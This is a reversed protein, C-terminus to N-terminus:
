WVEIGPMALEEREMFATGVAMIAAVIGDVRGTAKEKTIKRNGAPDSIVVANAACMTMVPNGNHKITQGVIMREFENIAPAMDKFGQGFSVLPLTIGNDECTQKFEEILWRDYGIEVVDYMECAQRCEIAVALKNIVKGTTTQLHGADRMEVYPVKDQDSKAQLNDDPLWFWCLMRWVPDDETPEFALVFSTLDRVSSLDLGGFCRRGRLLRVDFDKDECGFWVDPTIWPNEAGVWECFNLRRVISEKAPMGRAETVQERIYKLGPLGYKLSPNVKYWCDEDKFPDDGEDLACVYSFFADDVRQQSAVKIGYDHYQWCVTHKNFGSNTIMVMMAQKRSKTGARMMEVVASTKHEHIEDILSVHPRPGSQGDDASIPRFFSGTKLYALNWVGLGVGSKSLVKKLGSSQDVMAVADRFLIMAQDKKTAAAYIEARSEGDAVLGYLGIGAVLPSKGSGKATEIYAVRFRRYGDEGLWGFLSGVVFAEWDNLEFQVGEYDGGNLCLEDRFFGIARNALDYDFKLGRLKGNKLDDLHRQCASRVHPGALVKGKTVAKAYDGVPDIIPPKKPKKPSPM